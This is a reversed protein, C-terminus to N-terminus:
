ITVVSLYLLQVIFMLINIIKEIPLLNASSGISVKKIMFLTSKKKLFFGRLRKFYRLARVIVLIGNILFNCEQNITLIKM